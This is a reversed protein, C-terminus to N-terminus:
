SIKNRHYFQIMKYIPRNNFLFYGDVVLKYWGDQQGATRWRVAFPRGAKEKNPNRRHVPDRDPKGIQYIKCAIRAEGNVKLTFRYGEVRSPPTSHYLVVPAVREEKGPRERGLRAVVGLDSMRISGLPRLVVRSPWAFENGFGATWPRRPRIKDLWYYKDYDLERVTLFVSEPNELYFKLRLQDPLESDGERYDVLASILEIDYGSVPKPRVGEHRNGRSRYQLDVQSGVLAAGLLMLGAFGITSKSMTRTM